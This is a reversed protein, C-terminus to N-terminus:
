AKEFQSNHVPVFGAEDGREVSIMHWDTEGSDPAFYVGTDGVGVTWDELMVRSSLLAMVGLPGVTFRVEDGMKFAAM